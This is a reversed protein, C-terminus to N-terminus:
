PNMLIHMSFIASTSTVEDVTPGNFYRATEKPQFALAGQFTLVMLASTIFLSKKTM